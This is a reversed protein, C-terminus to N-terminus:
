VKKQIDTNFSRRSQWQLCKKKDAVSINNMINYITGLDDLIEFM